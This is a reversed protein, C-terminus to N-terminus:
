FLFLFTAAFSIILGILHKKGPYEKFGVAGVVATLAVSGGTVMPYLVSAPVNAAGILQLLYSTGNLIASVCVVAAIFAVTKGTIAQEIPKTKKVACIVTLAAASLLGNIGNALITFDTASVTEFGSIQHIKTTISVFGNLAFVILCLTFFLVLRGSDKKETKASLVPFIMSVALLIVGIVRPISIGEELFIVGFFYPLLMGGLMLFMTYVSFNGLSFIKFGILTYTCSLIAVILAMFASYPTVSLKFGNVIFFIVGVALGSLATFLLSNTISNGIRSQFLKSTSLNLALLVVAIFILFYYYM